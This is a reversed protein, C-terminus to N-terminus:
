EIGDPTLFRKQTYGGEHKQRGVGVAAGWKDSVYLYAFNGLLKDQAKIRVDEERIELAIWRKLPEKGWATITGGHESVSLRAERIGDKGIARIIGGEGRSYLRCVRNGKEDIVELERCIIKDFAGNRQAILPPSLISGIGIGVLMIVAGLVTYGLKQKHNM